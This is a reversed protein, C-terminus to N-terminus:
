GGCFEILIFHSADKSGRHLEQVEKSKKGGM